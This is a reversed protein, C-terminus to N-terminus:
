LKHVSLARVASARTSRCLLLCIEEFHAFIRRLQDLIDVLMRLKDLRYRSLILHHVVEQKRAQLIQAHGTGREFPTDRHGEIRLMHCIYPQIGQGVIDSSDTIVAVSLAAIQKLLVPRRVQMQDSLVNNAEM